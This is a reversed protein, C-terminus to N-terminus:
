LCVGGVGLYPTKCLPCMFLIALLETDYFPFFVSGCSGAFFCLFHFLTTLFFFDFDVVVCLLLLLLTLVVDVVVVDTGSYRPRSFM